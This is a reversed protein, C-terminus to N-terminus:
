STLQKLITEGFRRSLLTPVANGVQRAQSNLNGTFTYDGPFTQLSAAERVSIARDQEPHGFRGNSYSICRTTMAPAPSDWRLRGYVDSYGQFGSKHCEPQLRAPLDPWGGGQPTAQIRELNLPSLNAARHNPVTPHTEGASIAPYHGIWDFVTSFGQSPSDPGNTPGPFLIPQVNCGILMLRSRRQPVGYDQCRVVAYTTHYGFRNLAKVLPEFTAQGFTTTQLGPVNEVFVLEPSFKRIFRLLHKLLGFRQDHVPISGRRQQSFPQCPACGSFLLPHNDLTDVINSLHAAPLCKIDGCRFVAKPFNAKFTAAADQDNDLGFAIDMGAAKLGSSTGGCGCFFDFVKVPKNFDAERRYKLSPLTVQLRKRSSLATPAAFRCLRRRSLCDM